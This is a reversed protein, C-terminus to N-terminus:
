FLGQRGFHSLYVTGLPTGSETGEIGELGDGVSEKNSAKKEKKNDDTKVARGAQSFTLGIM